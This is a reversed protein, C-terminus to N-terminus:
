ELHSHCGQPFNSALTISPRRQHTCTRCITRLSTSFPRQRFAFTTSPFRGRAVEGLLPHMRRWRQPRKPRLLPQNNLRIQGPLLNNQPPAASGPTPSRPAPQRKPHLATNVLRQNAPPKTHPAATKNFETWTERDRGVPAHVRGFGQWTKTPIPVPKATQHTTVATPRLLFRVLIAKFITDIINITKLFFSFFTIDPVTLSGWSHGFHPFVAV